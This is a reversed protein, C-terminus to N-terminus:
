NPRMGSEHSEVIRRVPQRTEEDAVVQQLIQRARAAGLQLLLAAALVVRPDGGEKFALEKAFHFTRLSRALRVADGELAEKVEQLLRGALASEKSGVPLERDPVFGLCQEALACWQACGFDIGPNRFRHGCKSCRGMTEDKFLEVPAGCEPCPVEFVADETWYRPDQGPCRM